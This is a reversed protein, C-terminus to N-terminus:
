DSNRHGSAVPGNSSSFMTDTAALVPPAAAPAPGGAPVDRIEASPRLWWSSEPHTVAQRVADKDLNLIMPRRIGPLFQVDYLEECGATFEFMGLEAGTRLDVAAVGCRLRDYRQQIPLGGFLHKERIKCLGVLAIPGVFCLGRLYGPLGCVVERQGSAPDLALIEGTGSNLVWLRGAYWRPSHPMSLGGAVVSGSAVEIVVGGSAKKERWGGPTDTTGLATVYAPEGDRLAVGNLHCRDEPVLDTVFAPKWVPTFNHRYSLRALCSFRTNVLLLGDGQFAVDHTHLDGTHYTARPLYLADYRGPQDELYDHALLSANAFVSVENRTALALLDGQLAMGLPKDFQRMLLTVQRGDWGVMAVKGAQYTSIAVSGGAQALWQQFGASAACEIRVLTNNASPSIM